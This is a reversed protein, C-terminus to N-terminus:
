AQEDNKQGSRKKLEEYFGNYFEQYIEPMDFALECCFRGFDKSHNYILDKIVKENFQWSYM